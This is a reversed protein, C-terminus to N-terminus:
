WAEKTKVDCLNDVLQELSAWWLEDDQDRDDEQQWDKNDDAAYDFCGQGTVEFHTM